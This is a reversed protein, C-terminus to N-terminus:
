SPCMRLPTGNLGTQTYNYSRHDNVQENCFVPRPIKTGNYFNEIIDCCVAEAIVLSRKYIFFNLWSESPSRSQLLHFCSGSSELLIQFNEFHKEDVHAHAQPSM